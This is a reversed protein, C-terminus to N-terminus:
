GERPDSAQEAHLTSREQNLFEYLLVYVDSFVPIDRAVETVEM